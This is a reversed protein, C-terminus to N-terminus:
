DNTDSKPVIQRLQNRIFRPLQGRSIWVDITAEHVGFTEALERTVREKAQTAALLALLILERDTWDDTM